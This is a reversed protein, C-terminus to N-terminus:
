LQKRNFTEDVEERRKAVIDLDRDTSRALFM